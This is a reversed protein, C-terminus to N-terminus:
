QLTTRKGDNPWFNPEQEPLMYAMANIVEHPFYLLGNQFYGDARVKVCMFGFDFNEPLDEIKVVGGTKFFIMLHRKGETM